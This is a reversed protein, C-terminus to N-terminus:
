MKFLQEIIRKNVVPKCRIPRNANKMSQTKEHFILVNFTQKTINFRYLQRHLDDENEAMLVADDADCLIELAGYGMKYGINTEKLGEMIKDMIMTFLCPSLSDEQRIGTSVTM